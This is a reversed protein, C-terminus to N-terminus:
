KKATGGVGWIKTLHISATKSNLGSKIFKHHEMDM